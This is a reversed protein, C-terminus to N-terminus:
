LMMSHEIQDSRKRLVRAFHSHFKALINKLLHLHEAKGSKSSFPRLFQLM